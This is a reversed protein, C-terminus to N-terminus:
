AQIYAASKVEIGIGTPHLVDSEAGPERPRNTAGVASAVLFEALV